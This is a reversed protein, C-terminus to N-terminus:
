NTLPNHLGLLSGRLSGLPSGLELVLVGGPHKVVDPVLLRPPHAPATRCGATGSCVRQELKATMGTAQRSNCNPRCCGDSWTGPQVSNSDQGHASKACLLM